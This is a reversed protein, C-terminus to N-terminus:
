GERMATTPELRAARRAPILCATTVIVVGLVFAFITNGLSSYPYIISNFIIESSFGSTAETFNIGTKAFYENLLAGMGAGILSGIVGIIAGETMFLRLIEKGELGMASM